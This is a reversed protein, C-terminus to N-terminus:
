PRAAASLSTGAPIVEAFAVDGGRQAVFDSVGVVIQEEEDKSLRRGLEHPPIQPWIEQELLRRM